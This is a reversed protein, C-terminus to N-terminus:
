IMGFLSYELKYDCNVDTTKLLCLAKLKNVGINWVEKQAEYSPVTFEALQSQEGTMAIVTSRRKVCFAHFVFYPLIPVLDDAVGTYAIDSVIFNEIATLESDYSEDIGIIQLPYTEFTTYDM